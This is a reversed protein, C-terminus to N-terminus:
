DEDNIRNCLEPFQPPPLQRLSSLKLATLPLFKSGLLRARDKRGVVVMSGAGRWTCSGEGAVHAGGVRQGHLKQLVNGSEDESNFHFQILLPPYTAGPTPLSSGAPRTSNLTLTQDNNQKRKCYTQKLLPLMEMVSLRVSGLHPHAWHTRVCTHM